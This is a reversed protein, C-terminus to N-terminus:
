ARRHGRGQGLRAALPGRGHAGRWRMLCQVLSLAASVESRVWATRASANTIQGVDFPASRVVRVGRAHAHCVLAPDIVHTFAAATTMTSFDLNSWNGTFFAFVERAPGKTSLPQCLSADVCSCAGAGAAAPVLACVLAAAAIKVPM